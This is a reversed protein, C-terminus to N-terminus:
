NFWLAFGLFDGRFIRNTTTWFGEDTISGKELYPALGTGQVWLILDFTRPETFIRRFNIGRGGADRWFPLLKRGALIADAEDLFALWREVMEGTVKAGPFVGTQAPGPIWEHDDDKEAVIAKWSERSLKTVEELHHLATTMRQPEKVPFNLLHIFTIADVVDDASSRGITDARKGRKLFEFPTDADAFFIPATHLFLKETDHALVVEGFASLLHCYGQLWRVDGLDFKVFLGKAADGGFRVGPLLREMVKWLVEDEAAKGDGDFDLRVLGPRLSVKMEADGRVKSLTEAAEGLRAVFDAIAKRGAENTVREPRPNPAVPLRLFPVMEGFLSQHLGLRHWDQELKELARLFQAIGLQFRLTDNKADAALATEIVKLCEGLKGEEVHRALLDGPADAACAQVLSFALLLPLLIKRM